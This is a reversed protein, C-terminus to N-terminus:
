TTGATGSGGADGDWRLLEVPDVDLAEALRVLNLLGINREGNELGSLYSRNIGSREALASQTWGRARRLHALRRGFRGRPDTDRRDGSVSWPYWKQPGSTRRTRCRYCEPDHGVNSHETEETRTKVHDDTSRKTRVQGTATEDRVAVARPNTRGTSEFRHAGKEVTEPEV